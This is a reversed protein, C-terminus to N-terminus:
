DEDDEDDEDDFRLGTAYGFNQLKPLTEKMSDSIDTRYQQNNPLEITKMIKYAKEKAEKITDGVGTTQLVYTGVTVWDPVDIVQGGVVKPVEGLKM